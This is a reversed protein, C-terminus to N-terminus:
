LKISLESNEVEVINVHTDSDITGAIDNDNWNLLIKMKM